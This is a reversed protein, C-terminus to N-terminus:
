GGNITRSSITTTIASTFWPPLLEFVVESGLALAGRDTNGVGLVTGVGAGGGTAVGVGVTWCGDVGGCGLAHRGNCTFPRATLTLM